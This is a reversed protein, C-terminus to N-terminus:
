ITKRPCTQKAARSRVIPAYLATLKSVPFYTPRFLEDRGLPGIRERRRRLGGVPLTHQISVSVALLLSGAAASKARRFIADPIELTTKM